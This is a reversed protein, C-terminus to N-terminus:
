VIVVDLDDDVETLTNEEELAKQAERVWKKALQRRVKKEKRKEV